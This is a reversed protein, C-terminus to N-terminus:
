SSCFLLKFNRSFFLLLLFWCVLFSFKLSLIINFPYFIYMFYLRNRSRHVFVFPSYCKRRSARLLLRISTPSAPYKFATTFLLRLFCSCRFAHIYTYSDSNEFSVTLSNTSASSNESRALHRRGLPDACHAGRDTIRATEPPRTPRSAEVHLVVGHERFDPGLRPTSQSSCQRRGPKRYRSCASCYLLRRM